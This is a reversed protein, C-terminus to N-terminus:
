DHAPTEREIKALERHLEYRQSTVFSEVRRLRLEINNFDAVTNRLSRRPVFPATPEQWSSSSEAQDQAPDRDNGSSGTSRSAHRNRSPRGMVFYAVWYAPFVITPLFILGTIAALRVAWIEVGFYRALGACVGAIRARKPDRRLYGQRRYRRLESGARHHRRRRRRRRQENSSATAQQPERRNEAESELRKSTEEILTTARDSFQGATVTVLQQVAKELRSVAANFDAPGGTSSSASEPQHDRDTM